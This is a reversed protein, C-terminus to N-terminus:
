NSHFDITVTQRAGSKEVFADASIETSGFKMGLEIAKSGLTHNSKFLQVKQEIQAFAQRIGDSSDAVNIVDCYAKCEDSKCVQILEANLDMSGAIALVMRFNPIDPNKLLTDVESLKTDSWNEEGDTAVLLINQYTKEGTTQARERLSKVGVVIADYLATLGELELSTSMDSDNEDVSLGLGMRSVALKDIYNHVTTAYPQIVSSNSPFIFTFSNIFSLQEIM